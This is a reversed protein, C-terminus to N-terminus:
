GIYIYYIYMYEVHIDDRVNLPIGRIIVDSSYVVYQYLLVRRINQASSTSLVKLEKRM